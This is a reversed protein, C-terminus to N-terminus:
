YVGEIKRINQFSVIHVRSGEYTTTMYINDNNYIVLDCEYYTTFKIVKVGRDVINGSWQDGDREIPKIFLYDGVARNM